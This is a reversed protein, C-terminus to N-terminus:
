TLFINQCRHFPRKEIDYLFYRRSVKNYNNPTLGLQSQLRNNVNLHLKQGRTKRGDSKAFGRGRERNTGSSPEHNVESATKGASSEKAQMREITDKSAKNEKTDKLWCHHLM